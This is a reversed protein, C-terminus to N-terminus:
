KGKKNILNMIEIARKFHGKVQKNGEIDFDHDNSPLDMVSNGLDLGFYTCGPKISLFASILTNNVRFQALKDLVEKTLLTKYKDYSSYIVMRSNESVVKMGEIDDPKRYYESTGKICVLVRGPFELTNPSQIFKGVFVANFSRKNQVQFAVESMSFDNDEFKFTTLNRSGCNAVNLYTRSENVVELPLKGKIENVVNTIREDDLLFGLIIKFYNEIHAAAKVQIVRKGVFNYIVMVAVIGVLVGITGGNGLAQQWLVLVLVIFTIAIVGLGIGIWRNTIVMNNYQKKYTDVSKLLDDSFDFHEEPVEVEEEHTTDITEIQEVDVPEQEVKEEVQEQNNRKIM